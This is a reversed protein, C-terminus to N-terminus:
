KINENRMKWYEWFYNLFMIGSGTMLFWLFIQNNIFFSTAIAIILPLALGTLHLQIIKKTNKLVTYLKSLYSLPILYCEMFFISIFLLFSVEQIPVPLAFRFGISVFVIGVISIALLLLTPRFSDLYYKRNRLILNGYQIQLIANINHALVGFVQQILGIIGLLGPQDSVNLFIKLSNIFTINICSSLTINLMDKLTISFTLNSKRNLYPGYKQLKILLYGISFLIACLQITFLSTISVSYTLIIIYLFILKFIQEFVQNNMVKDILKFANIYNRTLQSVYVALLYSVAVIALSDVFLGFLFIFTLVLLSICSYIVLTNRRIKNESINVNFLYEPVTSFLSLPVICLSLIGYYSGLEAISINTSLILVFIYQLCIIFSRKSVVKFMRM